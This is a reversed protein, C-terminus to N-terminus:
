AESNRKRLKLEDRYFVYLGITILTISALYHWSVSGGMFFWEYFAGFSPCLFGSFSIFTISYHRLLWGYLNYVIINAVVILLGVWLLFNPWDHVPQSIGETLASTVLSLVGGILMASGNILGLNYGRNMLEKVMFWAYSASIVAAFLVIEPLSIHAIEMTSEMGEASAMIVPALGFLGIVVGVIQKKSLLENLIFYSLLAAIFPTASYILTTKLASIYQLAWFELIFAFYIHFLATKLFLWLDKKHISLGQKLILCQYTLLILGAVIMRFGILFCPSSFSVANKAFIFTLALLAYLLVVAIM